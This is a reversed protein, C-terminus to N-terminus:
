NVLNKSIAFDYLIPLNLYNKFGEKIDKLTKSKKIINVISIGFEEQFHLYSDAWPKNFNELGKWELHGGTLWYLTKEPTIEEIQNVEFNWITHSNDLTRMMLSVAEGIDTTTEKGIEFIITKGLKNINIKEDSYILESLEELKKKRM